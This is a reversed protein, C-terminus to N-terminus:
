EMEEVAFMTISFILSAVIFPQNGDFHQRLISVCFISPQDLTVVIRCIRVIFCDSFVIVDVAMNMIVFIGVTLDRVHANRM